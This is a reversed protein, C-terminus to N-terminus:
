MLKYSHSHFFRDVEVDANNYFRWVGGLIDSANPLQPDLKIISMIIIGCWFHHKLLLAYTLSIHGMSLRSAFQDILKDPLSLERRLMTTLHEDYARKGTLKEIAHDMEVTHAMLSQLSRYADLCREHSRCIMILGLDSAILIVISMTASVIEKHRNLYGIMLRSMAPLVFAVCLSVTTFVSMSELQPGLRKVFIKYHLLAHTLSLNLRGGFAGDSDIRSTITSNTDGEDNSTSPCKCSDTYIYGRQIDSMFQASQRICDDILNTLKSAEYIQDLCAVVVSTVYFTGCVTQIFLYLLLEAEFWLDLIDVEVRAESLHMNPAAVTFILVSACVTVFLAIGIIGYMSTMSELWECRRNFPQFIGNWAMLKVQKVLFRHNEAIRNPAQSRKRNTENLIIVETSDKPPLDECEHKTFKISHITGDREKAAAEYYCREFLLKNYIRSSAIFNNVRERILSDTARQLREPALTACVFSFDLRNRKIHLQPYRYILFSVILLSLLASESIISFQIFPAGIQKLLMRVDECDAVLESRYLAVNYDIQSGMIGRGRLTRAMRDFKDLRYRYYDFVFQNYIIIILKFTFYHHFYSFINSWLPEEYRNAQEPDLTQGLKIRCSHAGFKLLRARFKKYWDAENSKMPLRTHVPESIFSRSLFGDDTLLIM